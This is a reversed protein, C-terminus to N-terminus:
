VKKYRTRTAVCMTCREAVLLHGERIDEAFKVFAPHPCKAAKEVDAKSGVYIPTSVTWEGEKSFKM